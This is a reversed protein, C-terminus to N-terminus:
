GLKETKDATGVKEPRQARAFDSSSTENWASRYAHSM